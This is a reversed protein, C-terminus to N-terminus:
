ALLPRFFAAGFKIAEPLEFLSTENDHGPHWAAATARDRLFVMELCLSQAACGSTDQWRVGVLPRQPSASLLSDGQMAIDIPAASVHCSSSIRTATDFMPAVSLADLACMAHVTRDNVTVRHHREQASFPYAGVITQRDGSLVILDDDDLRQLAEDLQEPGVLAAVDQRSLPAGREAFGYLINRHLGHLPATLRDQRAKLPLLTNLRELADDINM